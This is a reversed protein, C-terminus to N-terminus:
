AQGAPVPKKAARLTLRGDLMDYVQNAYKVLRQDHTVLIILKQRQKALTQFLQGVAAVRVSDLSATPEDAMILSPDAYLARAIAARQQQGGSLEQPYKNVLQDIELQRLLEHLETQDLNGAKKVRDVLKFQEKITLFPVLNYAQLIFGIEHLRLDDRQKASLHDVAQGNLLVQGRSPMLLGGAITLFTSKGAGSPGMILVVEGKAASFNVDHLAEVAAAGHGYIKSVHKLALVAM